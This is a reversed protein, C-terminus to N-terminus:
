IFDIQLKFLYEGGLHQMLISVQRVLHRQRYHIMLSRKLHIIDVLLRYFFTSKKKPNFIYRSFISIGIMKSESNSLGSLNYGLEYKTETTSYNMQFGFLLHENLERGIYPNFFFTTRKVEANNFHIYFYPNPPNNKQTEFRINGGLVFKNRHNEEQALLNFAFFLSVLSLIIRKMAIPKPVTNFFISRM